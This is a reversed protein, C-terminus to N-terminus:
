QSINNSEPQRHYRHSSRPSITLRIKLFNTHHPFRGHINAWATIIGKGFDPKFTAIRSDDVIRLIVEMMDMPQRIDPNIFKFFDDVDYKPQSLHRPTATRELQRRASSTTLIWDRAKRIADLRCCSLEHEIFQL